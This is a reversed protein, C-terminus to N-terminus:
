RAKGPRERGIRNLVTEVLRPVSVLPRLADEARLVQDVLHQHEDTTARLADPKARLHGEIAHFAVALQSEGGCLAVWRPEEDTRDEGLLKALDFVAVLAGRIGVLGSLAENSSPLQTVPRGTLVASIESIRLAYPKTGVRIALLDVSDWALERPPLAFAGDFERRLEEVSISAM